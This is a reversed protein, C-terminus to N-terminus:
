EIVERLRRKLEGIKSFFAPSLVNLLTSSSTRGCATSLPLHLFKGTVLLKKSYTKKKKVAGTDNQTSHQM